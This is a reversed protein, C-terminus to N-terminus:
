QVSLEGSVRRREPVAATTCRSVDLPLENLGARSSAFTLALEALEKSHACLVGAMKQSQYDSELTILGNQSFTLM